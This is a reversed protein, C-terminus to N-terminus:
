RSFLKRLDLDLLSKKAYVTRTGAIYDHIAKRHTAYNLSVLLYSALVDGVSACELLWIPQSTEPYPKLFYLVLFFALCLMPYKAVFRLTAQLWGVKGGDSRLVRLGLLWQSPTGGLWVTCAIFYCIVGIFGGTAITGQLALPLRMAEFSREYLVCLYYVCIFLSISVVFDFALAMARRSTAPLRAEEPKSNDLAEILEDYTKFRDEPATALMKRIVQDQERSLKGAPIDPPEETCQKFLMDHIGSAEFAPKGVLLYYFTLGLSYIDSRRDLEECRAQEPSMYGPTGLLAGVRTLDPHFSGTATQITNASLKKQESSSDITDNAVVSKSIGFDMLKVLGDRTVMLNTPKIDRHVIGHNDAEQLGVAAQRLWKWAQEVPVPGSRNVIQQLTEGEVFEMAMFPRGQWLGVKYVKAIHPHNLISGLQAERRFRHIIEEIDATFDTVVKVAVPRQLSEDHGRYVIGMGGFALQKEIVIDDIQERQHDDPYTSAPHNTDLSAATQIGVLPLLPVNETERHFVWITGSLWEHFPQGRFFFASGYVFFTSLLLSMLCYFDWTMGFVQFPDFLVLASTLLATIVTVIGLLGGTRWARQQISPLRGQRNVLTYGMLWRTLSNGYVAEFLTNALLFLILTFLYLPIAIRIALDLTLLASIPVLFVALALAALLGWSVVTFVTGLGERWSMKTLPEHRTQNLKSLENEIRDPQLGENSLTVLQRVLKPPMFPLRQRLWNRQLSRPIDSSAAEMLKAIYARALQRYDERQASEIHVVENGDVDVFRSSPIGTAFLDIQIEDTSDGVAIHNAEIAGHIMGLKHYSSLGELLLYFAHSIPEITSTLIARQASERLLNIKSDGRAPLSIFVIGRSEGCELVSSAVSSLHLKAIARSRSLFWNKLAAHESWPPDLTILRVKRHLQAYEAEFLTGHCWVGTQHLRHYQGLTEGELDKVRKWTESLKKSRNDEQGARAAVPHLTPQEEWAGAPAPALRDSVGEAPQSEEGHGASDDIPFSPSQNM